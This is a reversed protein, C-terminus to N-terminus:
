TSLWAVSEQPLAGSAELKDAFSRARARVGEVPNNAYWVLVDFVRLPTVLSGLGADHALVDLRQHLPVRDIVTLMLQRIRMWYGASDALELASAVVSDYIPVLDARKRAMLKSVTTPGLGDKGDRLLRWLKGAASDLDIESEPVEWLTVGIRPMASLHEAISDAQHELIRIAAAGPVRISLCSLAMVDAATMRDATAPDNWPGGLSEFRSGTFWPQGNVKTAMYYDRLLEAALPALEPEFIRPLAGGALDTTM